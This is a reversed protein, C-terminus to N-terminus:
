FLHCDKWEIMKLFTRNKLELFSCFNNFLRTVRRVQRPGCCNGVLISNPGNNNWYLAMMIGWKKADLAVINGVQKYSYQKEL